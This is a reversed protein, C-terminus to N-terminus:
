PNTREHKLSRRQKRHEQRHKAGVHRGRDVKRKFSMECYPCQWEGRNKPKRPPGNEAAKEADRAARVDDGPQGPAKWGHHPCTGGPPILKAEGFTEACHPCGHWHDRRARRWERQERCFDGYDSM